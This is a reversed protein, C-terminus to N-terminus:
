GRGPYMFVSEGRESGLADDELAKARMQIQPRDMIGYEDIFRSALSYVVAEYWEGPVDIVDSAALDEIERLYTIEVTEGGATALAPWVLFLADERQRDYHFSTPLGTGTKNPIQDYEARTLETMEIESSGRKLRASLIHLPRAPSLTYSNATTLTLTQSARAFAEAGTNQWGKLMMDLAVIGDTLDVADPEQGKPAVGALVLARTVVQAVTYTNTTAM